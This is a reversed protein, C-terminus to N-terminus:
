DVFRHGSKSRRIRESKEMCAHECWARVFRGVRAPDAMRAAFLDPCLHGSLLLPKVIGYCRERIRVAQHGLPAAGLEEPVSQHVHVWLPVDILAIRGRQGESLGENWTRFEGRMLARTEVYAQHVAPYEVFATSPRGASPAGGKSIRHMAPNRSDESGGSPNAPDNNM